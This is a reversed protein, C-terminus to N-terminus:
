FSKIEKYEGYKMLARQSETMESEAPVWIDSAQSGEAIHANWREVDIGTTQGALGNYTYITYRQEDTPYTIGEIKVVGNEIPYKLLPGAWGGTSNNYLGAHVETIDGSLLKINFRLSVTKGKLFPMSDTAGYQRFVSSTTGLTRLVSAGGVYLNPLVKM